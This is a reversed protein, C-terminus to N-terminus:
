RVARCEAHECVVGQEHLHIDQAEWLGRLIQQGVAQLGGQLEREVEAADMKALSLGQAQWDKLLLEAVQTLTETSFKM